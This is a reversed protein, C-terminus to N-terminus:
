QAVERHIRELAELHEMEQRAPGAHDREYAQGMLFCCGALASILFFILWPM